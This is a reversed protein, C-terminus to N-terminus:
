KRVTVLYVGTFIMVIAAAQPLGFVALGAAVSVLCAVIPQVYNYMAVVTPRLMKQARMMLIYALFTGLFVVFATEYWARAPIDSVPIQFVHYGTFPVVLICAWLMMWKMCTVVRYRAILKKFLTLYLAFSLQAGIVLLDGRIDGAKSETAQSSGLILILAGSVGLAIGLVKRWTIREHLILATLILTIIPMTTTMISANTPATYSLGITFCCQNTVVGFLGAGAFLFKDRLTVHQHDNTVFSLIWFCLMSGVIRFTVIDIGGIGQNMADKGLPSMLGWIVCAGAM